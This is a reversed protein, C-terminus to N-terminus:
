VDGKLQKMLEVGGALGVGMGVVQIIQEGNLFGMTGGILSVAGCIVIGLWQAFRGKEVILQWISAKTTSDDEM